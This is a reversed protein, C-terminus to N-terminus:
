TRQITASERQFNATRHYYQRVIANVPWTEESLVRQQLSRPVAIKFASISQSRIELKVCDSIAINNQKAYERIDEETTSPHLRSVFIWSNAEIAKLNCADTRNGVITKTRGKAYSVKKFGDDSKSVSCESEGSVEVSGSATDDIKGTLKANLDQPARQPPRNLVVKSGASADCDESGDSPKTETESQICSTKGEKVVNATDDKLKTAKASKKVVRDDNRVTVMQSLYQQQSTKLDVLEGHIASITRSQSEILAKLEKNESILKNVQTQLGKNLKSNVDQKQLVLEVSRTLASIADLVNLGEDSNTQKCEEAATSKSPLPDSRCEGCKWQKDLKVLRMANFEEVSVNGCELHVYGNCEVCNLGEDYKTVKKGCLSCMLGRVKSDGAM